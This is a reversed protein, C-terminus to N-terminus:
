KSIRERVVLRIPVGELNFERRLSNIMFRKYTEALNTKIPITATFRLPNVGTQELSLISPRRTGKGTTPRRRAIITKLFHELEDPSLQRELNQKIQWAQDLISSARVGSVASVFVVPAWTLYPFHAAIYHQYQTITASDKAPILDWKNAIIFLGRGLDTIEEALRKDQSTLSRSIDIVLGVVDARAAAQRARKISLEEVAEGARAYRRIGATDTVNFVNDHHKILIDQADRTTHPRPSVIMREEGALRNLLASKGVNPKGILALAVKVPNREKVVAPLHEVIADLLDGVGSGNKASIPFLPFNLQRFYEAQGRLKPNDCKNVALIIKTKTRSKRLARAIALDAPVTPVTVDVVLVLLAATKQAALSQKIIADRYSDTKVPDLGGTDILNFTRRQWQVPTSLYDRTTGAEPLILARNQEAIKNFLTSKGVNSRGIIAVSPLSKISLM